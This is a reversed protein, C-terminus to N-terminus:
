GDDTPFRMRGRGQKRQGRAKKGSLRRERSARTPRMPIRPAPPREAERLLEALRELADERNREQSRFRQAHIILVGERSIRKRAIRCLRERIESGLAPCTQVRFRLEVASDTKNVHQGGPGTSRKYRFELDEEPLAFGPGVAILAM